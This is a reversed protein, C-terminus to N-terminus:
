SHGDDTSWYCSLSVRSDGIREPLSVVFEWKSISIRLLVVDVIKM